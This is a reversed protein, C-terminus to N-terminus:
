SALAAEKEAMRGDIIDQTKKSYRVNKYANWTEIARRHQHHLSENYVIRGNKVVQVMLPEGRMDEDAQAVVMTDGDGYIRVNGPISAKGSADSLKIQRELKEYMTASRKYALSITDRTVDKAVLYGGIGFILDKANHGAQVYAQAIKKAKLPEIGDEVVARKDNVGREDCARGWAVCQKATDGSDFRPFITKGINALKENIVDQIGMNETDVTDTLLVSFNNKEIFDKYSLKQAQRLTLNEKQYAVIFEHGTTGASEFYEPFLGTVEDDSTKRIGGGVYMAIMSAHHELISVDSRLGFEVVEGIQEEVIRAKTAQIVPRYMMELNPELHSVIAGPGEVVMFPIHGNRQPLFTQGGPLAYIDVPMYGGNDLVRQWTKEHFAKVKSDERFLQRADNAEEFTIPSMFWPYLAKELGAAVLRGNAGYDQLEKRAALTYVAHNDAFIDSSNAMTRKYTDSAQARNIPTFRRWFEKQKETKAMELQM